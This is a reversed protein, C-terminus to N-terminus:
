EPIETTAANEGYAKEKLYTAFDMGPSPLDAVYIYQDFGPDKMGLDSEAKERIMEINQSQKIDIKVQTIDDETQAINQKLDNIEKQTVAAQAAMMIVAMAIASVIIILLAIVRIEAGSFIRAEPEPHCEAEIRSPLPRLAEIRPAPEFAPQRSRDPRVQRAYGSRNGSATRNTRRDREATARAM